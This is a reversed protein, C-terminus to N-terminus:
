EEVIQLDGLFVQDSLFPLPELVDEIPEVGLAGQDGRFADAVAIPENVLDALVDLLADHEVARDALVM